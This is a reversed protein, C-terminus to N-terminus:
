YMFFKLIFCLVPSILGNGARAKEGSSKRSSAARKRGKGQVELEITM